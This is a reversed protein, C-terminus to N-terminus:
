PLIERCLGHLWSPEGDDPCEAYASGLWGVGVLDGLRSGASRKNTGCTLESPLPPTEWTPSLTACLFTVFQDEKGRARACVNAALRNPADRPAMFLDHSVRRAPQGFHRSGTRSFM